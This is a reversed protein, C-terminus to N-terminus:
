KKINSYNYVTRQCILEELPNGRDSREKAFVREKDGIPVEHWKGRLLFCPQNKSFDAGFSSALNVRPFTQGSPPLPPTAASLPYFSFLRM